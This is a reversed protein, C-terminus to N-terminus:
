ESLVSSVDALQPSECGGIGVDGITVLTLPEAPPMASAARM